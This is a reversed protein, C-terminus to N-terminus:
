APVSIYKHVYINGPNTLNRLNQISHMKSKNEGSERWLQRKKKVNEPLFFASYIGVADDGTLQGLMVQDIRMYIAVTFGSLILPWSDKLLETAKSFRYRWHSIHGGRHAYM